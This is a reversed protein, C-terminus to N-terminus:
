SLSMGSPKSHSPSAMKHPWLFASLTASSVPAYGSTLPTETESLPEPASALVCPGPNLGWCQWVFLKLVCLMQLHINVYCRLKLIYSIAPDVTEAPPTQM